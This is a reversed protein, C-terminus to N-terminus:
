SSVRKTPLGAQPQDLSPRIREGSVRLFKRDPVPGANRRQSDDKTTSPGLQQRLSPLVNTTATKFSILLCLVFVTLCLANPQMHSCYCTTKINFLMHFGLKAQCAFLM